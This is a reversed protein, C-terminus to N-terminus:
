TRWVPYMDRHAGGLARGVSDM